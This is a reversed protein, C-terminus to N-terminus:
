RGGTLVRDYLGVIQTAIQQANFVSTAKAAIEVRDFKGPENLVTKLAQKLGYVDGPPVLIGNHECIIEPLGGTAPAIVPVGCCLAELAVCSQTEFESFLVLATAGQILSPVRDHPVADTFFVYRDLADLESALDLLAKPRAGIMHLQFQYGASFVSAAARLIKHANKVPAMNSIHVITPQAATQPSYFFRTTDVVNPVFAQPRMVLAAIEQGLSKSVPAICAAGQLIRKTLWKQVPAAHLGAKNRRYYGSWHESVLYPLGYRKKLFLAFLGARFAVHVHVLMPTGFERKIEQFALAHLSIYARIKSLKSLLGQRNSSYVRYVVLRGGEYAQKEWAPLKLEGRNVVYILKVPIRASVALAQREIFDGNSRDVESPYWSALWLVYKHM